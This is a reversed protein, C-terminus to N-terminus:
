DLDALGARSSWMRRFESSEWIGRLHDKSFGVKEKSVGSMQEKNETRSEKWLIVKTKERVDDDHCVMWLRKHWYVVPLTISIEYRGVSKWM